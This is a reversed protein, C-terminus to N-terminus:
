LTPFGCTEFDAYFLLLIKNPTHVRTKTKVTITTVTHTLTLTLYSTVTHRKGHRAGISFTDKSSHNCGSGLIPVWQQGFVDGTRRAREQGAESLMRPERERDFACKGGYEIGLCGGTRNRGINEKNGLHNRLFLLARQETM